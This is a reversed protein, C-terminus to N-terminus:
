RTSSSSQRRLCLVAASRACRTSRGSRRITSRRTRRSTRSVSREGNVCPSIRSPFGRLMGRLPQLGPAAWEAVIPMAKGPEGLRVFARQVGLARATEEVAVRLVSDLDLHTRFKAAIGAILRERELAEALASSSQIRDLALAAENGLSQLLGLEEITFARRDTVSAVTLVARVRSDAFLPVFAVSKAGVQEVLRRNVLPSAQADFIALPAGDFVTSATGSTENQLDIRVGEFWGADSGDVRAVVGTAEGLDDSILVLAGFEVGLLKAAEDILTRGM